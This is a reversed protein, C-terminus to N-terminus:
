RLLQWVRWAVNAALAVTAPFAYVQLIERVSKLKVETDVLVEGDFHGNTYYSDLLADKELWRKQLWSEFESEDELPIAARAFRRWHMNVSKPPRGEFYISPLTFFDQGFGGRPVGEYAVTCDYLYPVNMHKLVYYLGRARPLLLHQPERYGFKQAYKHSKDIGSQTINTGEPFILVWAPWDVDENIQTVANHLRTEDKEWRRSLFIFRFYQMGWGVFPINKLSEKLIIYINGHVHGTYAIWWMYLWDSYIQHNAILVAKEGFKTEIRGDETRVILGAVSHDGVVHVPTPSWWQTMTTVVLGFSQKTYDVWAHSWDKSILRLPWGILQTFNITLVATTFYFVFSVFRVAQFMKPQKPKLSAAIHRKALVSGNLGGNVVSGGAGASSSGNLTPVSSISSSSLESSVRSLQSSSSVLSTPSSPTDASAASSTSSSMPVFEVSDSALPAMPRPTFPPPPIATPPKAIPPDRRARSVRTPPPPPQSQIPPPQNSCDPRRMRRWEATSIGRQGGGKRAMRRVTRVVTCM